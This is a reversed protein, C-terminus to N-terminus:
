VFSFPRICGASSFSAAETGEEKKEREGWIMEDQNKEGTNDGGGIFYGWKM